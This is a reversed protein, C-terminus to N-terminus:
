RRYIKKLGEPYNYEIIRLQTDNKLLLDKGYYWSRSSSSGEFYAGKEELKQVMVEPNDIRARVRVEIQM